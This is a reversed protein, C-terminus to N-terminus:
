IYLQLDIDKNLFNKLIGWIIRFVNCTQVLVQPSTERQEGTHPPEAMIKQVQHRKEQNPGGARKYMPSTLPSLLSSLPCLAM